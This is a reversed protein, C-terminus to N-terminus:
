RGVEGQLGREVQWGKWVQAVFDWNRVRVWRSGPRSAPIGGVGVGVGSGIFVCVECM